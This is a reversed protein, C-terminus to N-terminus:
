CIWWYSCILSLAGIPTGYEFDLRNTNFDLGVTTIYFRGRNKWENSIM